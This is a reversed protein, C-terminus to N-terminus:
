HAAAMATAMERRLQDRARDVQDSTAGLQVLLRESMAFAVETEATIVINAGAATAREADSIYQSRALILIKPYIERAARIMAEPPAGSATFVLSVARAAGAAELIERQEADGYIANVGAQKLSKVTEINLDIITPEIAHEKLLRSVTKGVPGYGVVIARARGDDHQVDSLPAARRSLWHALPQALRFLLPNLTITLIASGVLIQQAQEPLIGLQRGLAALIFSFEGIQALVVAVSVATTTPYRLLRIVVYAALSKGIVIVAMTAAMLGANPVLQRPDFLMGVSVFFLVAFADRMPLADAGARSGFDSQGVVMGALFAGLAMSVGFLAASGVAIGLAIALVSLTFLERSRTKVVFGLISPLVRRGVVVTFTILVGIKAMAEAVSLALEGPTKVGETGALVPLLVLVLVTFVDEVLLWGVAIHGSPTHLKDNDALVRLLVVTSAVSVCLGFVIGASLSWGFLSTV